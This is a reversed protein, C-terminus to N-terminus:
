FYGYDLLITIQGREKVQILLNHQSHGSLCADIEIMHKNFCRFGVSPLGNHRLAINGKSAYHWCQFYDSVILLSHKPDWNVSPADM